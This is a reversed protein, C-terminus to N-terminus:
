AQNPALGAGVFEAGFKWHNVAANTDAHVSHGCRECQFRSRSVRNAKATHGCCSCRQSSYAAPAEVLRRGTWDAKYQLQRVTEGHGGALLLRSVGSSAKQVMSLLGLKEVVVWDQSEVLWTTLKHRYDQVRSSIKLALKGLLQRVRRWRTSGPKKRALIRQWRAELGLEAVTAVPFRHFGGASDAYTEECGFDLGLSSGAPALPEPKPVECTFTVHFGRDFKLSVRSIRGEIDRSKRFRVWGFKPLYVTDGNLEFGQPWSFSFVEDRKSKWNPYGSEGALFREFATEQVQLLNQLVQSHVERLFPFMAKMAPLQASIEGHKLRRGTAEYFQKRQDLFWNWVFRTAGWWVTSRTAQEATLGYCRFRFARTM